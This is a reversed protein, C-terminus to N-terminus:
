KKKNKKAKKKNKKAKKEKKKDKKKENKKAVGHHDACCDCDCDCDGDGDHHDACCDCECDCDDGDDEDEDIDEADDDEDEIDSDDGYEHLFTDTPLEEFEEDEDDYMDGYLEEQLQDYLQIIEDVRDGLERYREMRLRIQEQAFEYAQVTEEGAGEASEQEARLDDLMDQGDLLEVCIEHLLESITLSYTDIPLPQRM